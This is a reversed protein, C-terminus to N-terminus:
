QNYPMALSYNSFEDKGTTEISTSPALVIDTM